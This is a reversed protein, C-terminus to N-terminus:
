SPWSPPPSGWAVRRHRRFTSTSAVPLLIASSDRRLKSLDVLLDRVNQYRQERAKELCKRVIRDLEDPVDYAYRSMAEPQVQTIRFVTDTRSTGAFPLRGTFMEYVMVGFSFIDSRHDVELGRVQEPSMYDVTGLM